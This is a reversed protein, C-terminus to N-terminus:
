VGLRLHGAHTRSPKMRCSAMTFNTSSAQEATRGASRRSQLDVLSMLFWMEQTAFMKSHNQLMVTALSSGSRPTCLLFVLNNGNSDILTVRPGKASFRLLIEAREGLIVKYIDNNTDMIGQLYDKYPRDAVNVLGSNYHEGWEGQWTDIGLGAQDVYNFVHAGVIYPLTAVDEVYNRYRM